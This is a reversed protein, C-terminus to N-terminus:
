AYGGAVGPKEKTDVKVRIVLIHCNPMTPVIACLRTLMVIANHGLGSLRYTLQPRSSLRLKGGVITNGGQKLHLFCHANRVM